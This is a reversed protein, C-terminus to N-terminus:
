CRITILIYVYNVDGCPDFCNWDGQNRHFNNMSQDTLVTKETQIQPLAYEALSFIHCPGGWVPSQLRPLHCKLRLNPFNSFQSLTVINSTLCCEHHHSVTEFM